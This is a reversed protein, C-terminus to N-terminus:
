RTVSVFTPALNNAPVYTHTTSTVRDIDIRVTGRAGRKFLPSSVTVNGFIDTRAMVAPASVMGSVRVYVIASKLPNGYQDQVNINANVADSVSNVRIFSASNVALSFTNAKTQGLVNVTLLASTSAGRDDTVTLVPKYTGPARYRHTATPGNATSPYVDAFNWLYSVLIGDPDYSLSGNFNVVQSPQLQYDYSLSSSLSADAVPPKNGPELWSATLGYIGISSYDTYGDTAGTGNAIGDLQIYYAGDETITYTIPDPAMKGATGVADYTNLVTGDSKLLKVQLRLNPSILAVKPTIVLKGRGANIKFMDIDTAGNILGGGTITNGTVVTAAAMTGGHDDTTIPLYTGIVAIDDQTNNADTYEGKSWQVIDKYYGVGMIPAWSTAGTGHGGFYQLGGTQTGDHFLGVTHGVEHAGAEAMFKSGAGVGAYVFCPNDTQAATRIGSFSGVYAQGGSGTANQDPGFVVRMGYNVDSTSARKLGELGPDETTVDVDFRAFDEAMSRWVYQIAAHEAASFAATNADLSFPPTTFTTKNFATNWPTGTTTHGNFDLYIKRTATPRSHLKFTESTPYSPTTTIATVDPGIPAKLGACMYFPSHGSAAIHLDHDRDCAKVFDERPVGAVDAAEEREAISALFAPRYLPAAGASAANSSSGANAQSPTQTAPVPKASAAMAETVGGLSISGAKARDDSQATPAVSAVVPSAVSAKPTVVVPRAAPAVDVAAYEVYKGGSPLFFVAGAVALAFLCAAVKLQRPSM